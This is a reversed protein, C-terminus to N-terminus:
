TYTINMREMETAHLFQRAKWRGFIAQSEMETAAAEAPWHKNSDKQSTLVRNICM